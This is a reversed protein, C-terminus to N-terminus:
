FLAKQWFQAHGHEPNLEYNEFGFRRYANQAVENGSLVELTIKCCNQRRAEAEIEELLETSLGQGRFRSEIVFDHINILPQCYFTSFGLFCNALGAAEGDVLLLFSLASELNNLAEPLANLVAASLPEGGGMVDSAYHNMLMKFADIHEENTFDVKMIKISM